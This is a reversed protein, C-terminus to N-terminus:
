APQMNATMNDLVAKVESVNTCPFGGRKAHERVQAESEALYQCYIRDGAVLSEVWQIGPGTALLAANSTERIHNLQEATLNGAGPLDREIVYRRM